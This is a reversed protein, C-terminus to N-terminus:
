YIMCQGFVASSSTLSYAKWRPLHSLRSTVGTNKLLRCRFDQANGESHWPCFHHQQPRGAWITDHMVPQKGGPNINMNEADLADDAMDTHCSIHECILVLKYGGQAPYKVKANKSVDIQKM